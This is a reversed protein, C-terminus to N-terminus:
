YVFSSYRYNSLRNELDVVRDYQVICVNEGPVSNRRLVHNNMFNM